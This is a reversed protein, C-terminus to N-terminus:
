LKHAIRLKASRARPNDTLEQNSATLPKKTQINLLGDSHQQKLFNKVLRDELSHFSIVALAGNPALLETAQTLGDVLAGMEDNVAIRLAQFTRTAPHIKDPWARKPIAGEIVQALERTSVIMREARAQEIHKAIRRAWREEGYDKIITELDKPDWTNVIEAATQMSEDSQDLRMDLPGDQLFSFGRNPNEIQNSSWGLDFLVVDAQIDGVSAQILDRMTRFNGHLLHVQCPMDKLREQSQQLGTTDTDIGIFTGDASLQQCFMEAHGGGNVTADIITATPEFGVESKILELLVPVHRNDTIQTM